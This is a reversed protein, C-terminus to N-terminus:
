GGRRFRSYCASVRIFLLVSCFGPEDPCHPPSRHRQQTQLRAKRARHRDRSWKPRARGSLSGCTRCSWCRGARRPGAAVLTPVRVVIPESLFFFCQCVKQNKPMRIRSLSRWRVGAPLVPQNPRLLVPVVDSLRNLLVVVLVM